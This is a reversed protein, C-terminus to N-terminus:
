RTEAWNPGIGLEVGLPVAVRDSLANSMEHHVLKTLTEAEDDPCEFVLEDHIQLLLRSRLQLEKVKRALSVMAVKILDAASGQIQMNIAEREPQNRGKYSSRPRIGNIGRRRGLFTEVYGKKRCEELLKDQYALVSPYRAFYSDIFDAAEEKSIELRQALGFASMGYLVGFNVTKALRRHEKTVEAEPVAFVQSAVLTHIDHNSIFAQKLTEDDAFHALLRLEIQSYDASLLKWGPDTIFAQRIQGGQETRIPINQLNPESSSLRGTAAVTQNFSAHVRGTKPLVAAPLADVYTSKLKAIKRHELLKRPLEHGQGALDELTEQDTSAARTINTRKSPKFGMEGFLIDRLQKVSGINFTRGALKFIEQELETLDKEMSVGMAKLKPVEIRIGVYEMEALIEVLPMELDDYLYIKGPERPESPKHKFGLQELAPELKECLRFAVDADESSYQAVTACAVQDMTLQQKGKGILDQIPIPRHNLHKEALIDMGHSREGAHLLYDAIMSDGAVGRLTIGHAKLVQWDYKINQNIKEISPDELIPKLRLLVEDPDLKPDCRPGRCAIYYALGPKWCIAFGVVQASIPALDDTEIDIAFRKHKKLDRFFADFEDWTSILRYDHKWDTTASGAGNASGDDILGAFLDGQVSPTRTATPVPAPKNSRLSTAPLSSRIEDAFRQFGWERYLAYLSPADPEQLKWGEWDIEMPVDTRLRVLTRSLELTPLAKKFNEFKKGKLGDLHQIINDLTQYEQLLQSATKPGIGEVGPVNDVSDGVMTQYDVVQEPTVGWDAKLAAADFTEKKRLNYVRIRDSLLQRCDKDTSCIYVDWGQKEGERALTAIVDDAEFGEIGIKPIRMAQLLEHIMPIQLKLDDPMPSRHAKYETYLDERFNKGVDFISLLWGPKKARLFQLDRAFGFAANTPLGSPSSMAAIAHFVQFILSYSDILYLTPPASM